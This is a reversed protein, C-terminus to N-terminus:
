QCQLTRQDADHAVLRGELGAVLSATDAKESWSSLYGRLGILEPKQALAELVLARLALAQYAM